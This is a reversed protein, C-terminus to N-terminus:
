REYQQLVERWDRKKPSTRTFTGLRYQRLAQRVQLNGYAALRMVDVTQPAFEVNNADCYAVLVGLYNGDPAVESLISTPLLEQSTSAETATVSRHEVFVAAKQIKSIINETAARGVTPIISQPANKWTKLYDVWLEFVFDLRRDNPSLRSSYQTYCQYLTDAFTAARNKELTSLTGGYTDTFHKCVKDFLYKNVPTKAAVETVVEVAKNVHFYIFPAHIYACPKADIYEAYFFDALTRKQLRTKDAPSTPLYKVDTAAKAYERISACIENTRWQKGIYPGYLEQSAYVSSTSIPKGSLLKDIYHIGNYLGKPIGLPSKSRSSFKWQWLGLSEWLSLIKCVALQHSIAIRRESIIQYISDATVSISSVHKRKFINMRNARQVTTAISYITGYCLWNDFLFPPSEDQTRRILPDMSCREAFSLAVNERPAAQGTFGLTICDGQM